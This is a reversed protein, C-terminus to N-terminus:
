EECATRQLCKGRPSVYERIDVNLQALRPTTLYIPREWNNTALIDLFALDKKELANGKMRLRMQDVVLNEM